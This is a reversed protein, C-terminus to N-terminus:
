GTASTTVCRKNPKAMTFVVQWAQYRIFPLKLLVSDLAELLRLAPLFLPTRRLPIAGLTLLHFFTPNVEGFYQRAQVLDKKKLLHGVEWPTRLDPTMKRYLHIIPNHGLAETAIAIGDPKMVRSLEPLAKSLDLHHLCGYIKIVDFHNDPFEMNEADMVFFKARGQVGEERAHNRGHEIGVDSIDIGCVEAAGMKAMKVTDDGNGCCYDLVRKGPVWAKLSNEVLDISKREVSYFKFNSWLPNDELRKEEEVSWRQQAAGERLKNHFDIEQQKRDGMQM